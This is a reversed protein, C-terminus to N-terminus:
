EELILMQTITGFRARWKEALITVFNFVSATKFLICVFLSKTFHIYHILLENSFAFRKFFIRAFNASVNVYAVYHFYLSVINRSHLFGRYM